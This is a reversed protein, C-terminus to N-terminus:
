RHPLVTVSRQTTMEPQGDPRVTVAVTYDGPSRVKLYTGPNYSDCGSEDKAESAGPGEIHVTSTCGSRVQDAGAFSKWFVEIQKTGNNDAVYTDGEVRDYAWTTVEVRDIVSGATSPGTDPPPPTPTAVSRLRFDKVSDRAAEQLGGAVFDLLQQPLETLLSTAICLRHLAAMKPKDGANAGEEATILCQAIGGIMGNLAATTVGSDINAVNVGTVFCDWAQPVDDLQKLDIGLMSVGSLLSKVLIGHPQPTMRVDAEAIGRNLALRGASRGALVGKNNPMLGVVLSGAADDM